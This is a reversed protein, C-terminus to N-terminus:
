GDWSDREANLYAEVDIGQWVEKGMGRLELISYQPHDTPEDDELALRLREQDIRPLQRAQQLIDEYDLITM